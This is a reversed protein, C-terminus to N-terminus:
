AHRRTHFVLYRIALALLPPLLAVALGTEGVDRLILLTEYDPAWFRHAFVGWATYALFVGFVVAIGLVVLAFFTSPARSRWVFIIGLFALYAPLFIGTMSLQTSYLWPDDAYDRVLYFPFFALECVIVPLLAYCALSRITRPFLQAAM